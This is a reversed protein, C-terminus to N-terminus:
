RGTKGTQLARKIKIAQRKAREADKLEIMKLKRKRISLKRKLEDIQFKEEKAFEMEERDKEKKVYKFLIDLPWKALNIVAVLLIVIILLSFFVIWSFGLSSYVFLIVAYAILNITLPSSIYRVFREPFLHSFNFRALLIGLCLLGITAISEAPLDIFNVMGDADVNYIFRLLAISVFLLVLSNTFYTNWGPEEDKYREFYVVIILTAFALPVVNWLVESNFTLGLLNWITDLLGIM